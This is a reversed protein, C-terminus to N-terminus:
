IEGEQVSGDAMQISFGIGEQQASFELMEGDSAANLASSLMLMSVEEEISNGIVDNGRRDLLDFEAGPTYPHEREPITGGLKASKLVDFVVPTGSIKWDKDPGIIWVLNNDIESIAYYNTGILILFNEKFTDNEFQEIYNTGHVDTTTYLVPANAGNRIGLTSELNTSTVLKMGRYHFYGKAAHSLRQFISINVGVQDSDTYGNIYFENTSGTTIGDFAYQVGDYLVYHNKGYDHYSDFFDRVDSITQSSGRITLTTGLNVRGRRTLTHKGTSSSAKTVNSDDKLVYSIGTVTSTPLTSSVDDLILTGDPLINKIEYTDSYAAITVTWPGGTYDTNDVDWQTKIDLTYFDINADTLKHVDDQYISANSKTGRVNSLHFTFASQDIPDSPVGDVIDIYSRGANEVTYDGANSSPSLIELYTFEQDEDLPLQNFFVNPSYLVVEENYAVANESSLETTLNTLEDRKFEAASTMSRNFIMQANGSITFEGGAMNVLSEIEEGPPQIFDDFGGYLNLSHLMAHFPVFDRIVDQIELIRDTSLEKIEVDVNFKSGACFTCPDLFEKGIDCPDYSDRTSGNYEEMNYINESYPFITRVRGYILPDAYPNRINIILDFMPDDEELVRVNWNKPPYDQDREDRQDALSLTRIYEEITQEDNDPVEVFQYVVRISDDESLEIPNYSLTNGIWTMTTVDDDNAFSVYDSSLETWDDDDSARYYIEFNDTDIPLIATKTLVFEDSDSVLFYDQYTYKSVVQWLRTFKRLIAGSQDLAEELGALTGKKKYLPIAQKIQRRWLTPDNTTLKSGFLNSLLPLLSEHTANADILDVIQNALDELGTFGKAVAENFESLVPPTLDGDGLKLKFMEPLYRELLTSYKIPNTFHTPISTTLLTSGGLNFQIHDSLSEGSPNPTWTWCIFYDGEKMGLPMWELQFRGYIPDGDEDEEVNTILAESDDTSLWAPYDEEGFVAVTKADNYYFTDVKASANLQTRLKDVEALNDETPSDCATKIAEDLQAKVTTDYITRDYSSYSTGSYNREIFFIKVNDVKYPNALFCGDADPCALDFVIRDAITPNESITKPEMM